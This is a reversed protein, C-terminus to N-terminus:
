LRLDTPGALQEAQKLIEALRRQVEDTETDTILRPKAFIGPKKPRSFGQLSASAPDAAPYGLRFFDIELQQMKNLHPIQAAQLLTRNLGPRGVYPRLEKSQLFGPESANEILQDTLMAWHDIWYAKSHAQTIDVRIKKRQM